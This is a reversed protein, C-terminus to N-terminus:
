SVDCSIDKDLVDVKVNCEILSDIKQLLKNNVSNTNLNFLKKMYDVYDSPDFTNSAKNQKMKNVLEWFEKPNNGELNIIKQMLDRKFM